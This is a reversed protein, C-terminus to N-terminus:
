HLVLHAAEAPHPKGGLQEGLARDVLRGARASQGRCGLRCCGAESKEVDRRLADCLRLQQQGLELLTIPGAAEIPHHHILRVATGRLPVVEPWVVQAQACQPSGERPRGDHPYRQVHARGQGDEAAVEVARVQPQLHPWLAAAGFPQVLHRVDGPLDMSALRADHVRQRARVGLPRSDAERLAAHRGCDVVGAAVGAPPHRHLLRPLRPPHLHHYGGDGKPEANVLRVHAEHQVM